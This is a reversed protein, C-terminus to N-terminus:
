SSRSWGAPLLNAVASRTPMGYWSIRPGRPRLDPSTSILCRLVPSRSVSGSEPATSRRRVRISGCRIVSMQGVGVCLVPRDPARAGEGPKFPDNGPAIQARAALFGEDGDDGAQGH